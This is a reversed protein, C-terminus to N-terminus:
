SPLNFQELRNLDNVYGIFAMLLDYVKGEYM